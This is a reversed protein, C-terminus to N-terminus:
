IMSPWCLPPRSFKLCRTTRKRKKGIQPGISSTVPCPRPRRDRESCQEIRVIRAALSKQSDDAARNGLVM